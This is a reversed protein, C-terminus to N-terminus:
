NKKLEWNLLYDTLIGDQKEKWRLVKKPKTDAFFIKLLEQWLMTFGQSVTQLHLGKTFSIHLLIKM